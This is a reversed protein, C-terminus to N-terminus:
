TATTNHSITGNKNGGCSDTMLFMRFDETFRSDIKNFPIIENGRLQYCM